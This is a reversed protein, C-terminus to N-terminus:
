SVRLTKWEYYSLNVPGDHTLINRSADATHEKLKHVPIQVELAYDVNHRGNNESM